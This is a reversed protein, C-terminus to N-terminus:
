RILASSKYGRQVNEDQERQERKDAALRESAAYRAVLSDMNKAAGRQKLWQKETEQLQQKVLNVQLQQQSVATALRNLFHHYSQLREGSIGTRGEEQVMLQYEQSYEILQQLKDTEQSLQERMATYKKIAAQEKMEELHLVPALRQSKKM